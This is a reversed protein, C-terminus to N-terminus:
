LRYNYKYNNNNNYFLENIFKYRRHVSSCNNSNNSMTTANPARLKNLHVFFTCKTATAVDAPTQAM